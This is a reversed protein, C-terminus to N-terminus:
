ITSTTPSTPGATRSAPRSSSSTAPRSRSEQRRRRRRDHRQVVARQAGQDGPQRAAVQPRQRDQRRHRAHRRRLHDPLRRDASRARHRRAHRRHGARTSVARRVARGGAGRRRRRGAAAGRRAAGRRRGAGRRARRRRTAGRHIVGVAFNEPGVDVVKITRDVGPTANVAKVEEDTIYTASKPAQALLAAPTLMAAVAFANLVTKTMHGRGKRRMSYGFEVTPILGSGIMVERKRVPTSTAADNAETDRVYTTDPKGGGSWANAGSSRRPRASAGRALSAAPGHVFRTRRAVGGLEVRQELLHLVPAAPACVILEARDVQDGRRLSLLRRRQHLGAFRNRERM